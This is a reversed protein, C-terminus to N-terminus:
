LQVRSLKVETDFQSFPLNLLAYLSSPPRPLCPLKFSISRRYLHIHGYLSVAESM